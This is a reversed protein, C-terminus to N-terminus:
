KELLQRYKEPSRDNFVGWFDRFARMKQMDFSHLLFIEEDRGASCIIKGTHDTIFSSGYFTLECSKGIETGIRNSAAVPLINAAAHGQMVRQWHDRSDITSDAPESGIASPYLLCEAGQLAMARAVEPFWQDWCIGVGIKSYYTNWVKLGTNGQNFYYKEHYCEGSPIHTKRYIGLQQGDADIIAVSNYYAGDAKEFFSVPLVVHLEAALQAFHKLLPNNQATHAFKFFAPNRDKCFYPTEFLEPLLIINADQEAASRVLFEAKEINEKSHWTCAMQIVAITINNPTKNKLM